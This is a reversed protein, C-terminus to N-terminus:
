GQRLGFTWIMDRSLQGAQRPAGASRAAVTPPPPPQAIRVEISGIRITPGAPPEPESPAARLPM